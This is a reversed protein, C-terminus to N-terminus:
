TMLAVVLKVTHHDQVAYRTYCQWPNWSQKFWIPFSFLICPVWRFCKAFEYLFSFSSQVLCLILESPGTGFVNITEWFKFYQKLLTCDQTQILGKNWFTDVTVLWLMFVPDALPLICIICLYFHLFVFELKVETLIFSNWFIALSPYPHKFLPSVM